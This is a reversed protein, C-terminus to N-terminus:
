EIAGDGDADTGGDGTNETEGCTEGLHYGLKCLCLCQDRRDLENCRPVVDLAQTATRGRRDKLTVELRFSHDFVDSSAWENPCVPVNSYSGIASAFPLGPSETTAWGDAARNLNVTRSDVRVQQTTKDRLAGTLQLACADVNTARVGVFVVRGGQPPFIVSLDAGDALNVDNGMPDLARIQFDIAKAPDGLFGAACPETVDPGADNGPTGPSHSCAAAAVGAVSVFTAVVLFRV